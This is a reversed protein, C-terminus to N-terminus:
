CGIRCAARPWSSTSFQGGFEVQDMLLFGPPLAFGAIDRDIVLEFLVGLFEKAYLGAVNQIV